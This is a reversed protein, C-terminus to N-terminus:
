VPKVIIIPRGGVGIEIVKGVSLRYEDFSPNSIAVVSIYGGDQVPIIYDGVSAGLVNVPVRGCFSIRDVLARAEELRQNYNAILVEYDSVAEPPANEQPKEPYKGIVDETAWSDGGVMCPDTSKVMFHIADGWVDTVKGDVTIGVVQGKAIDGCGEAKHMYEAYDAGSANITGAANISRSTGADKNVKLAAAAANYGTGTINTLRMIETVTAATDATGSPAGSWVHLGAQITYIGGASSSTGYKYATDYYLNSTLTLEPTSIHGRIACGHLAFEVTRYNANWVSPTVSLGIPRYSVISTGDVILSNSRTTSGVPTNQFQFRTGTASPTFAEDAVVQFAASSQSLTTGNWGRYGFSKLFDGSSIATPTAETGRYRCFHVNNGFGAAGYSNLRFLQKGADVDNGPDNTVELIHRPDAVISNANPDGDGAFIFDSKLTGTAVPDAINLKLNLATQTATSIPKNADSTNDVNGLGVMAKTVGSVTGTFTPNNIPAKGSELADLRSDIDSPSDVLDLSTGNFQYTAGTSRLTLVFWKPVPTSTYSGAVAFYIRNDTTNFYATGNVAVPLSSVIGDINKDFMYSFKKLNEDMGLNWNSEGLDWGFKGELFPSTQQTM